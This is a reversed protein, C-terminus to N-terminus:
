RTGGEPNPTAGYPDVYRAPTPGPDPEARDTGDAGSAYPDVFVVPEGVPAAPPTRTYPDVFVAQGSPYTDAPAPAPPQQAPETGQPRPAAPASAPHGVPAVPPSPVVPQAPAWSPTRTAMPRPTDAGLPDPYDLVAPRTVPPVAAPLAALARTVDARVHPPLDPHQALARAVGRVVELAGAAAEQERSARDVQEALRELRQRAISDVLALKQDEDLFRAADLPNLTTPTGIHAARGQLALLQRQQAKARATAESLTERVRWLFAELREPDKAWARLNSELLVDVEPVEVPGQRDAPLAADKM